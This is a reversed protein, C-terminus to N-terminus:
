NGPVDFDVEFFANAKLSITKTQMWTGSVCKITYNLAKGVHKYNIQYFGDGDAVATGVQAGAANRLTITSGPVPNRSTTVQNVGAVGPNKKFVNMNCISDTGTAAGSVSFAYIGGNNITFTSPTACVGPIANLSGDPTYGSAKKLGYDLHMNVYVFGSAPVTVEVALSYTPNAGYSALTVPIAGGILRVPIGNGPTLCGGSSSPAVSVGDYAHIPNAGQTVYPYPITLTFALTEGVTGSAFVNYFTQGPNTATVKYCPWNKSDQTFLLRFEKCPTSPNLDYTCLSSDTVLSPPLCAITQVCTDENGCDDRATWTRTIVKPFTGVVTDQYTVKGATPTGEGGFSFTICNDSATATGTVAPNTDTATINPPCIVIPKTADAVSITQSTTATNGSLDTAKWTRVHVVPCTGSSSDVSTLTATGCTDSATPEAFSPVAPCEIVSPDPVPSITPNTTDAVSITQSTTATNGCLDTATWTRVHVVPGTGSSSDLFTLMATGCTDSATPEAFVPMAPCEIVTPAPVASITPKTTDAVSITQSTTATNGSLDTAKWTRVHVVPCTGSSSDLFTLMATGSTDSATPEAFVPMAPCEIVTPAPVASITPNTTDAQTSLFINLDSLYPSSDTGVRQNGPFIAEDSTEVLLFGKGTDAGTGYFYFAENNQGDKKRRSISGQVSVPTESTNTYTIYGATNNGSEVFTVDNPNASTFAFGSGTVPTTIEISNSQIAYNAGTGEFIINFVIRAAHAPVVALLCLLLALLPRRLNRM